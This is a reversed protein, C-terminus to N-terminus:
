ISDCEGETFHRVGASSAECGNGYTLGDCGCVPKYEKTCPQNTAPGKCDPENDKDECGFLLILGGLVAYGIMRKM